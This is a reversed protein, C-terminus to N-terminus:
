LSTINVYIPTAEDAELNNTSFSKEPQYLLIDGLGWTLQGKLLFDVANSYEEELPRLTFLNGQWTTM